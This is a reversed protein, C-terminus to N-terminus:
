FLETKEETFNNPSDADSTAFWCKLTTDPVWIHTIQGTCCGFCKLNTELM